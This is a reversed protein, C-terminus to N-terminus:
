PFDLLNSDVTLRLNGSATTAPAEEWSQL